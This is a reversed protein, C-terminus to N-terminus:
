LMKPTHQTPGNLFLYTCVGCWMSFFVYAICVYMICVCLYIYAYMDAANTAKCTNLSFSFYNHVFNHVNQTLSTFKFYNLLIM